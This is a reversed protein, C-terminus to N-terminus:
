ASRDTAAQQETRFWRITQAIAQRHPTPEAGFANAFKSHDVVWPRLSQYQTEKIAAVPPSFIALVAIVPQPVTSVRAPLGLEAFVM